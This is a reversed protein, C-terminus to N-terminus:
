RLLRMSKINRIINMNSIDYRISRVIVNNINYIQTNDTVSSILPFRSKIWTYICLFFFFELFLEKLPFLLDTAGLKLNKFLM